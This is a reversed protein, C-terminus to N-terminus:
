LHCFAVAITRHQLADVEADRGPFHHSNEPRRAGTFRRQDAKDILQFSQGGAVDQDVAFRRTLEGALRQPLQAAPDPKDKLLEVEVAMQGRPLVDSQRQLV